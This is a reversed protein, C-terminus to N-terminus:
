PYPSCVGNNTLHPFCWQILRGSSTEMHTGNITYLCEPEGKERLCGSLGPICSNECHGTKSCCWQPGSCCVKGGFKPGCEKGECNMTTRLPTTTSFTTTTSLATTTSFTTTTTLAIPTETREFAMGLWLSKRFKKKHGQM